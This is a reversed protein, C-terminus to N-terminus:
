RHYTHLTHHITSVWLNTFIPILLIPYPHPASRASSSRHPQTAASDVQIHFQCTRMNNSKKKELVRYQIM